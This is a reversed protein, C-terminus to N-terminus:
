PPSAPPLARPHGGLHGTAGPWPRAGLSMRTPGAPLKPMSLTEPLFGGGLPGGAGVALMGPRRPDSLVLPQTAWGPVRPRLGKRSM